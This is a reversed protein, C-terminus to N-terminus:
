TRKNIKKIQSLWIFIFDSYYKMLWIIENAINKQDYFKKKLIKYLQSQNISTHRYDEQKVLKEDIKYYQQFDKIVELKYSIFIKREIKSKEEWSFDIENELVLDFVIEEIM